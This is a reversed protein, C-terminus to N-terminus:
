PDPYHGVTGRSHTLFIETAVPVEDVVIRRSSDLGHVVDVVLEARVTSEVVDETVNEFVGRTGAVLTLKLRIQSLDSVVSRDGQLVQFLAPIDGLSQ